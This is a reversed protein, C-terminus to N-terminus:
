NVIQQLTSHIELYVSKQLQLLACSTVAGSMRHQAQATFTSPHHAAAPLCCMPVVPAAACLPTSPLGSDKWWGLLIDTHFHASLLPYTSLNASTGNYLQLVSLCSNHRHATTNAICPFRLSTGRAGHQGTKIGGAASMHLAAAHQQPHVGLCVKTGNREVDSTALQLGM